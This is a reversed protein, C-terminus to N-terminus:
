RAHRGSSNPNNLVARVASHNTYITVAHGYLYCRFHSIAWVVALNELDTIGYNRESPSLSRSAFAVPHTCKDHQQQSLVAGIGDISADTELVFDKDFSPYALVPAECLKQKLTTFATQHQQTWVFTTGPKTLQHLPKAIKAFSPIFRWYFSSLGLFQKMQRVNSPQRFEQVASVLRPTTKLGKPTLLHGLFEVEQRVFQCKTPKLKLGASALRQLVAQLHILHHEMTQSYILVDDIYVSVFANGQSPNLGTLLQQMLRQLTSPANTLGFPMVRFEYLGQPTIFATKPVSDKHVRIQWYGSALDLTTFYRAQDLQDLLDDIWPLPYSDLRTVENLRRYDICFRHSGDKKRVLVVPSAWPSASAEIVGTDQMLQLQRAVEKRAAFPMRRARQRLPPTTGTDIHLQVLDTEGRETEELGFVQNQQILLQLLQEKYEAPAGNDAFLSRIREARGSNDRALTSVSSVHHVAIHADDAESYGSGMLDMETDPKGCHASTIATPSEVAVSSAEGIVCGGEVTQTFASMNSLVIRALGDATPLM